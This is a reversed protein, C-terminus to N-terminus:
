VLTDLPDTDPFAHRLVHSPHAGDAVLTGEEILSKRVRVWTHKACGTAAHVAEWVSKNSAKDRSAAKLAAQRIDDKNDPLTREKAQEPSLACVDGAVGVDRDQRLPCGRVVFCVAQKTRGLNSKFVSATHIGDRVTVSVCQRPVAVFATSGLVADVPEDRGAGPLAKRNHHIMQIVCNQRPPIAQYTKMFRRVVADNNGDEIGQRAPDLTAYTIGKEEMVEELEKPSVALGVHNAITINDMDAGSHKLRVSIVDRGDEEMTVYLCKRPQGNPKGELDRGRSAMAMMYAALTSKGVGPAGSLLNLARDVLFQGPFVFAVPKRGEYMEAATGIDDMPDAEPAGTIAPFRAKRAAEPTPDWCGTVHNFQQGPPDLNLPPPKQRQRWAKDAKARTQVFELERRTEWNEDPPNKELSKLAEELTPTTNCNAM